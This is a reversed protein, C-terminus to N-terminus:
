DEEEEFARAEFARLFELDKPRGSREKSRLLKELQGVRVEIGAVRFATADEALDDYSFGAMSTMRDIQGEDGHIATLAAGGSVFRALIEDDELDLFPEGAAEFTYGLESLVQLAAALNEAAPRLLTDLDITAVVDDPTRAYFNIGGVGVVVFEVGAGRLAALARTFGSAPQSV